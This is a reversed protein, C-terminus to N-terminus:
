TGPARGAAPGPPEPSRAPSRRPGEERPVVLAVVVGALAGLGFGTLARRWGGPAVRRGADATTGLAGADDGPNDVLKTAM